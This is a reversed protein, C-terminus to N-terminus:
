NLFNNESFVNEGIALLDHSDQQALHAPACHGWANRIYAQAYKGIKAWLADSIKKDTKRKGPEGNAEM